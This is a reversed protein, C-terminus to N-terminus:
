KQNEKKEFFLTKKMDFELDRMKIKIETPNYDKKLLDIITDKLNELNDVACQYFINEKDLNMNLIEYLGNLSDRIKEYHEWAKDLDAQTDQNDM